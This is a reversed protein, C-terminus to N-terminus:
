FAMAIIRDSQGRILQQRRVYQKAERIKLDLLSPFSKQPKGSLWALSLAESRAAEVMKQELAEVSVPNAGKAVQPQRYLTDPTALPFGNWYRPENQEERTNKM